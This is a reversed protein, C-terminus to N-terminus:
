GRWTTSNKRSYRIRPTPDVHLKEALHRRIEEYGLGTLTISGSEEAAEETRAYGSQSSKTATSWLTGAGLSVGGFLQGVGSPLGTVTDFPHAVMNVGEKVPREASSALAQAFVKTKSLNELQAIAPADSLRIKLLNLSEVQYTGANEHYVASDAGVAYQGMAGNTPVLTGVCYGPGTLASAPLFDTIDVVAPQEYQGMM